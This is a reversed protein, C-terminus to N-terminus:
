CYADCCFFPSPSRGRHGDFVAFIHIDKEDCLQPMFFHRDEMTERRGCTAFSGWSLVPSYIHDDSSDLWTSAALATPVKELFDKGQSSWSVNEQYSQFHAADVDNSSIFAEGSAKEMCIRGVEHELISDLKMVIDDLSPRNEPDKDWCGEILSLLSAPAGSQLDALVPRLGESVVAATLQQETYNMELVTHAQRVYIYSGSRM